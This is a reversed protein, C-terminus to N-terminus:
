NLPIQANYFLLSLLCLNWRNLYNSEATQNSNYVNDNNLNRGTNKLGGSLHHHM